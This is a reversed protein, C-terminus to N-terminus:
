GSEPLPVVPVSLVGLREYISRSEARLAADQSAVQLYDLRALATITLAVEYDAGIERGSALSREMAERAGAPDGSQLLAWGRLRHLLPVQVEVDSRGARELTEDAHRLAAAVDGSFVYCEAIRADTELV